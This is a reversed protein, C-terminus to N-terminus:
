QLVVNVSIPVPATTDVPVVVEFTVQPALAVGDVDVLTVHGQYTGPDVEVFTHSRSELPQLGELSGLGIVFHHATEAGPVVADQTVYNVIVTKM